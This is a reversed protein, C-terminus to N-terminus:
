LVTYYSDGLCVGGGWFFVLFFVSSGFTMMSIKQMVFFGKHLLELM